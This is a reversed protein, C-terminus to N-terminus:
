RWRSLRHAAVAARVFDTERLSLTQARVLRAIVPWRTLGLVLALNLASGGFLAAVLLAFVLAPLSFVIDAGRM